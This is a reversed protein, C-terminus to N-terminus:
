SELVNHARTSRGAPGGRLRKAHRACAAGPSFAALFERQYPRAQSMALRVRRVSATIVAGIKLLKLRITQAAARALATSSLGLRRLAQM